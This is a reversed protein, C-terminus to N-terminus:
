GVLNGRNLLLAAIYLEYIFCNNVRAFDNAL